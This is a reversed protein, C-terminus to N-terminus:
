LLFCLFHFEEFDSETIETQEHPVLHRPDLSSHFCTLRFVSFLTDYKGRSGQCEDSASAYHAPRKLDEMVQRALTSKGVQRPGTLVQLFRRQERLRRSLVSHLGKRIM